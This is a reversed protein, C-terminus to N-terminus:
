SGATTARRRISGARSTASCPPIRSATGSRTARCPRWPAPAPRAPTAAPARGRSQLPHLTTTAGVTDPTLNVNLTLTVGDISSGAPIAAAIDFRLLARRLFARANQGAKGAFVDPGAGCSNDEFTGTPDATIGGEYITNDAVPNLTATAAWGAPAGASVLIAALLTPLRRFM